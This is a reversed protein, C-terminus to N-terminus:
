YLKLHLYVVCPAQPHTLLLLKQKKCKIKKHICLKAELGCIYM